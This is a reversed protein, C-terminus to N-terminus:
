FDENGLRKQGPFDQAEKLRCKSCIGNVLDDERGIEGCKDCYEKDAYDEFPDIEDDDNQNSM